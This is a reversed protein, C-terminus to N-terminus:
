KGSRADPPVELWGMARANRRVQAQTTQNTTHDTYILIYMMKIAARSRGLRRAHKMANYDTPADALIEKIEADTYSKGANPTEMHSGEGQNENHRGHASTVISKQELAAGSLPCM